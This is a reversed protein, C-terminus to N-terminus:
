AGRMCVVSKQSVFTARMHQGTSQLGCMAKMRLLAAGQAAPVSQIAHVQGDTASAAVSANASAAGPVVSVPAHPQSTVSALASAVSQRQQQLEMLADQHHQKGDADDAVRRQARCAQWGRRLSRWGPRLLSFALWWALTEVPPRMRQAHAHNHATSSAPDKFLQNSAKWRPSYSGTCQQGSSMARQRAMCLVNATPHNCGILAKYVSVM